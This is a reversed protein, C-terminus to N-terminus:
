SSQELALLLERPDVDCSDAIYRLKTFFDSADGEMMEVAQNIMGENTLTDDYRETHKGYLQM